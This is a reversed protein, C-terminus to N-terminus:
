LGDVELAAKAVQGDKGIGQLVGAAVIGVDQGVASRGTRMSPPAPHNVQEEVLFLLAPCAAAASGGSPKRRTGTASPPSSLMPWLEAAAAAGPGSLEPSAM